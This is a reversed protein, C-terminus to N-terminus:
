ISPALPASEPPAPPNAPTELKLAQTITALLESFRVPKQFFAV